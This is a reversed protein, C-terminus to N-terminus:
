RHARDVWVRVAGFLPEGEGEDRRHALAQRASLLREDEHIAAPERRHEEAARAGPMRGARAAARIEDQVQARRLKAAVMAPTALANGGRARTAAARVE